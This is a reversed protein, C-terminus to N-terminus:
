GCDACCVRLVGYWGAAGFFSTLVMAPRAHTAAESVHIPMCGLANAWHFARSAGTSALRLYAVVILASAVYAAFAIM